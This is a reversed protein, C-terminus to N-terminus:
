KELIVDGGTKARYSDWIDSRDGIDPLTQWPPRYGYKRALEWIKLPYEPWKGEAASLEGREERTLQGMFSGKDDLFVQMPRSM